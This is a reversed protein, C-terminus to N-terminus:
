KKQTDIQLRERIGGYYTFSISFILHFTANFIQCVTLSWLILTCFIPLREGKIWGWDWWHLVLINKLIVLYRKKYNLIWIHWFFSVPQIEKKSQRKVGHIQLKLILIKLSHKYISTAPLCVQTSITFSTM